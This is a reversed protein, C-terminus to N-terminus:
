FSSLRAAGLPRSGSRTKGVAHALRYVVVEVITLVFREQLSDSEIFLAKGEVGYSVGERRGVECAPLVWLNDLLERPVRADCLRHVGVRMECFAHSISGHVAQVAYEALKVFM